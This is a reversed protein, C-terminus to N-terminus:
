RRPSVQRTPLISPTTKKQPIKDLYSRIAADDSTAQAQSELPISPQRSISMNPQVPSDPIGMIINIDEKMTNYKNQAIEKRLQYYSPPILETEGIGAELGLSGFTRVPGSFYQELSNALNNTIVRFVADRQAPGLKAGNQIAQMKTKFTDVLGQSELISQFEGPMVTSGPQAAKEGAVALNRDYIGLAQEDGKQLARLANSYNIKANNYSDVRTVLNQNEPSQQIDKILSTQIQIKDKKTLADKNKQIWENQKEKTQADARSLWYNAEAQDKFYWLKEGKEGSAERAGPEYTKFVPLKQEMRKDLILNETLNAISRMDKEYEQSEKKSKDLDVQLREKQLKNVGMQQAASAIGFVSQAVNLGKIIDEFPDKREKKEERQPQQVSIIAM